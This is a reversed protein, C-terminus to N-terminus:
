DFQIHYIEYFRFQWYPVFRPFKIVRIELDGFVYFIIKKMKLYYNIHDMYCILEPDNTLNKSRKWIFMRRAIQTLVGGEMPVYFTIVGNKTIKQRWEILAELLNPLHALLCTAVIRDVSENKFMQLNEANVKLNIRKNPSLNMPAQPNLSFNERLDTEFYTDFEHLVFPFHQGHGAGLELTIPFNQNTYPSEMSRHIKRWFFGLLGKGYVTEYGINEKSYWDEIERM